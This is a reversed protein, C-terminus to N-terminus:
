GRLLFTEFVAAGLEAALVEFEPLAKDAAVEAGFGDVFVDGLVRVGPGFDVVYAEERGVKRGRM